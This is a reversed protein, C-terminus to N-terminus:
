ERVSRWAAESLASRVGSTALNRQHGRLVQARIRDLAPRDVRVAHGAVFARFQDPAEPPTDAAARSLLPRIRLSGKIAAMHPGALRTATVGAVVDGVSRLTVSEEGLSPLVREIYATYAASPGVVLI